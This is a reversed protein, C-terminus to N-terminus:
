KEAISILITLIGPPYSSDNQPRCPSRLAGLPGFEAKRHAGFDDCISSCPNGDIASGTPAPPRPTTLDRSSVPEPGTPRRWVCSRTILNLFGVPRRQLTPQMTSVGAKAPLCLLRPTSGKSGFGVNTQSLCVRILPPQSGLCRPALFSGPSIVQAGLVM